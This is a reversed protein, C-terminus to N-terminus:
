KLEIKKEIRGIASRQFWQVLAGVGVMIETGLTSDIWGLATVAGAIVFAAIAIYTKWGTM